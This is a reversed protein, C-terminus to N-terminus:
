FLILLTFIVYVLACPYAILYKQDADGTMLCFMRSAATTSLIISVFALILGITNNLTVFIGFVSLIVIPLISYGLISAVGSLKIFNEVPNSMLSILTYMVLVTIISLGYIYGFHAKNGSLFLCAALTLCFVIPGALDSELLYNQESTLDKTRLPNLVLLSKQIIREPNIELEELLPPEGYEDVNEPYGYIGGDVEPPTTQQGSYNDAPNYIQPIQGYNQTTTEYQSTDFSQFETFCLYIKIQFFVQFYFFFKSQMGLGQQLSQDLYSNQQNDWYNSDYGAM